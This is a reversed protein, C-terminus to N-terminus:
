VLYGVLSRGHGKWQSPHANICEMLSYAVATRLARSKTVVEIVVRGDIPYDGVVTLKVRDGDPTRWEYVGDLYSNFQVRDGTAEVVWDSTMFLGRYGNLVCCSAQVDAFQSPSPSGHGVLPTFYSWWDGSPNLAALLANFLSTEMAEAFRAEGTLHLAQRTLRMWYTTVCTEQPQSAPHTQSRTTHAWLEQSSGSGVVTIEDRAIAEVADVVLNANEENQTVRSLEAVGELCSMLEYAKASAWEAPPRGNRVADLLHTPPIGQSRESAWDSVIQEAFEIVAPHEDAMLAVPHLISSNGVGALVDLGTAPLVADRTRLEKRLTEVVRLAALRAGPAGRFRSYALLAWITYKQNWVDFAFLRHPPDYTGVYGGPEQTALVADVSRDLLAELKDDPAARLADIAALAWKGWFEGRFGGDSDRRDAFPITLSDVDM